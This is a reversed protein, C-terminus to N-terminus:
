SAILYHKRLTETIEWTVKAGKPIFISQGATFVETEGEENTLTVSGALVTMMEDVPYSDFHEKTPASEWIGALIGNDDSRHFFHNVEHHDDTTFTEPPTFDSPEFAVDPDDHNLMRFKKSSPM